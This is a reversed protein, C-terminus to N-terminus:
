HQGAGYPIGLYPSTNMPSGNSAAPVQLKNETNVLGM